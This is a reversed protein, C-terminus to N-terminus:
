AGIRRGDARRVVVTASRPRGAAVGDPWRSSKTPERAVDNATYVSGDPKRPANPHNGVEGPHQINIFMVRMDPAFALGTIECRSPGVLFRVLTGRDAAGALRGCRQGARLLEHDHTM